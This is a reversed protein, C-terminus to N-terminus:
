IINITNNTPTNNVSGILPADLQNLIVSVIEKKCMEYTLGFEKLLKTIELNDNHLIALLLHESGVYPHKLDHMEKKTMLLIKQAEDTFRSFM